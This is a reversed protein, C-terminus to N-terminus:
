EVPWSKPKKGLSYRGCMDTPQSHLARVQLAIVLNHAVRQSHYASSESAPLSLSEIRLRTRSGFVRKKVYHRSFPRWSPLSAQKSPRCFSELCVMPEFGM